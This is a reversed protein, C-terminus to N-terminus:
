ELNSLVFDKVAVRNAASISEFLLGVLLVGDSADEHTHCIRALTLLPSAGTESGISFDVRVLDGVAGLESPSRILAGDVSLDVVIVARATSHQPAATAALATKIRLANRVKRADVVEPFTLVAYAYSPTRFTFDFAQIVTATFLFDYQGTFGRILYIEDAKMGFKLSLLGVPVIMLCKGEILGLFQVEYNPLGKEVAEAQLFMGARLKLSKLSVELYDPVSASGAM